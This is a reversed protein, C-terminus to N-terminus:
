VYYCYQYHSQRYPTRIYYKSSLVCCDVMVFLYVPPPTTTTPTTINFYYLPQTYIRVKVIINLSSIIDLYIWTTVDLYLQHVSENKVSNIM